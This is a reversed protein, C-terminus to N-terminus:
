SLKNMKPQLIELCSFNPISLLKPPKNTQKKQQSLPKLDKKAFYM